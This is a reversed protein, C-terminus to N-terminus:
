NDAWELQNYYNNINNYNLQKLYPINKKKYGSKSINIAVNERDTGDKYAKQIDGRLIKLYEITDKYSHKDFEKGHGGLLYKANLKALNNIAEIWGDVKSNKTYNLMRGNFVINGVFLFSDEKSYIAIDSNEESTISPKIIKIAKNRGKITFGSEALIDMKVLKTKNMIKDDLIAFLRKFNDPNDKIDKEISKHGVIKAGIEQFYSAGLIRDDHYNSIIVYSVKKNPYDKKIVNHFEKAFNYTPGSDLVVISVGMDIYCINSVFGKNSKTPPNFDGIACHVDKTIQIPKIDYMNAMLNISVLFYILISKKM